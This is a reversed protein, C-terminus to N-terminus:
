VQEKKAKLLLSKIHKKMEIELLEALVTLFKFSENQSKKTINLTDATHAVVNRTRVIEDLKDKIFTAAVATGWKRTFADGITKFIDDLGIEKFKEKVTDGGPNSNTHSFTTPDIHHGILRTCVFLVDDIREAKTSKTVYKPGNMANQLGDFVIKIKLKDPLKHLDLPPITNLQSINEEFLTRLFFEFAAVMLIASGGRLGKVSAMEKQKPKPFKTREIDRLAKALELSDKFKTYASVM